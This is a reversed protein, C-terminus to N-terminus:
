RFSPALSFKDLCTKASQQALLLTWKSTEVLMCCRTFTPTQCTIIRINEQLLLQPQIHMPTLCPHEVRPGYAQDPGWCKIMKGVPSGVSRHPSEQVYACLATHPGIGACPALCLHCLVGPFWVCCLPTPPSLSPGLAPDLLVPGWPGIRACLALLLCCIAWQSPRHWENPGFGCTSSTRINDTRIFHSNAM